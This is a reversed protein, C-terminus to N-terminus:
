ALMPSHLLFGAPLQEGTGDQQSLLCGTGQQQRGSGSVGWPQNKMDSGGTDGASLPAVAWLQGLWPPREHGGETVGEM